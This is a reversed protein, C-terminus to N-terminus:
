GVANSVTTLLKASEPEIVYLEGPGCVYLLGDILFSRAEDPVYELATTGKEKLEGDELRYLRYGTRDGQLPLGVYGSEPDAFVLEPVRLARESQRVSVRDTRSLQTRNEGAYVSLIVTGNEEPDDTLALLAGANMGYFRACSGPLVLNEGMVPAAPDSLEACFIPDNPKETVLFARNDVFRCASVGQEGGIKGLETGSEGQLAADLLVIRSSREDSNLLYNTWGHKEDTYSSFSCSQTQLALRLCDGFVSMSANESLGGQQFCGGAFRFNSDFELRLVETQLVHTNAVISYPPETERDPASQEVQWRSRALYLCDTGFIAADTADTLAVADAVRGDQLRLATVLSLATRAPEARLYVDTARLDRKSGNEEIWPLVQEAEAPDPLGLLEKGTLLCLTGNLFGAKQLTGEVAVSALQKPAAPDSIDLMVAQTQAADRANGTEDTDFLASTSVVAARDGQVYLRRALAGEPSEIKTYSLIKSGAGAASVVLLGYSDVTYICGNDACVASEEWNPLRLDRGSEPDRAPVVSERGSDDVKGAQALSDRVAAADAAASAQTPTGRQAQTQQAYLPAGGEAKEEKGCASLSGLLLCLALLLPLTKLKM